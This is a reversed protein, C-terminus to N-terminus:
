ENENKKAEERCTPCPSDGFAAELIEIDDITNEVDVEVVHHVMCHPCRAQIKVKKGKM